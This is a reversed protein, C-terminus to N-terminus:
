RWLPDPRIAFTDVTVARGSAAAGARVLRTMLECAGVASLWVLYPLALGRHRILTGVNGSVLAVSVAAVAAYGFLLAAVLADRRCSFILGIPALVALGYWVIQEPLFTLASPSQAEWPLPVTVYRTVARVLFRGAEDFRMDDAAAREEYFREDLLKYVYGPTAIHGAHQLAAAQVATYVRLQVAPRSLIAGAVIPAAFVVALMLRPRTILVAVAFGCAISAVTLAAGGTRITELVAALVAIGVLSRARAWWGAARALGVALV